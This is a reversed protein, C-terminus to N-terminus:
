RGVARRKSRPTVLVQVVKGGAAGPPPNTVFSTTAELKSEVEAPTLNPFQTLLRAAAGAVIPTSWSTGSIDTGRYDSFGTNAAVLIEEAPALLELADGRCSGPWFTNDRATGGVTILGAISPGLTAPFLIVEGDPGCQSVEGPHTTDAVNGAAVVFLFRKGNPDPHGDRDVGGVMDRIKREVEAYSGVGKPTQPMQSSMNIIATRVQPTSPSWAHRIVEDFARMWTAAEDSTARVAVISAGPAVGVHRGAILSAVGTGHSQVGADKPLNICAHIADEGGPCVTKGEALAVADIGGIVNGDAFEDHDKEIGVDLVYVLATSPLREFRGDLRGGASDLRDLHWLTEEDFADSCAILHKVDFTDFYPVTITHCRTVVTEAALPLALLLFTSAIALRKVVAIIRCHPAIGSKPVTAACSVAPPNEL